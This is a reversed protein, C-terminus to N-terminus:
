EVGFEARRSGDTRKCPRVRARRWSVTEHGVLHEDVGGMRLLGPDHHQAAVPDLFEVELGRVAALQAAIDIEGLDRPYLRRQLGGEDVVAAVAVAEQGEAFDMGVVILDRDGVPLRQDGLFLARVAVGLVLDVAAGAAAAVRRRRPALVAAAVRHARLPQLVALSSPGVPGPPGASMVFAAPSGTVPPRCGSVADPRLAPRHRPRRAAHPLLARRPVFSVAAGGGLCGASAIRRAHLPGDRRVRWRPHSGFREGLGYRCVPCARSRVSGVASSHRRALPLPLPSISSGASGLVAVLLDDFRDAAGVRHFFHLLARRAVAAVVLDLLDDLAPLDHQHLHDLFLAAGLARRERGVEREGAAIRHQHRVGRAAAANRALDGARDVALAQLLDRLVEFHRFAHADDQAGGARVAGLGLDLAVEFIQQAQPLRHAVERQLGGRRLEDVLFARQDLARDAIEVVLVDVLDQDGAVAPWRSALSKM